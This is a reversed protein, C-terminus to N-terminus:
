SLAEFIEFIHPPLTLNLPEEEKLMADCLALMSEAKGSIMKNAVDEPTNGVEFLESLLAANEETDAIDNELTYGETTRVVINENDRDYVNHQERANPQNDFDRVVGIKKNPNERNLKLWIDLFKKYGKQGISIVEINSLSEDRLIISNFLMEETTGEVLIVRNAFLLKLIDFNPRKRLYDVLPQSVDSLLIAKDGSLALVNSLKLKNIVSPNHTAIITQVLSSNQKVSKFIFDSALRLNNVSLHAEPEEICCLNFIESQHTRYYSFLIFIYVLNREGLGKQYLFKDGYKLTINSLINKLNPLNPICKLQSIFAEINQFSDEGHIANIIKDFSDTDEISSFFDVYAQNIENREADDLTNVLLKTLLSNAKMTDSDSFDDREANINSVQVRKLDKYSIDRGNNVSIIKYEYTEIPLTFWRATEIDNIDSLLDQVVEILDDNSKPRFEYQIRYCEHGNNDHIWRGLLQREYEDEPSSFDLTIIVKPILSRLVEIDSNDIVAQFFEIICQTNIDSVTLRKKNYDVSNGSLPLSMASFLNTKGADNEGIVITM